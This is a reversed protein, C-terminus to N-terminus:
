QNKTQQKLLKTMSRTVRKEILESEKSKKVKKMNKKTKKGM